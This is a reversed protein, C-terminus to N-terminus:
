NALWGRESFTQKWKRVNKANASNQSSINAIKNWQSFNYIIRLHYLTWLLTWCKHRRNRMTPVILPQWHLGWIWSFLLSSKLIFNENVKRDIGRISKCLSFICVLVLKTKQVLDFNPPWWCFKFTIKQVSGSFWILFWFNSVTKQNFITEINLFINKKKMKAIEQHKKPMSSVKLHYSPSIRNTSYKRYM